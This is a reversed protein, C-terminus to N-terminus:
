SSNLNSTTDPDHNFNKGVTVGDNFGRGSEDAIDDNGTINLTQNM